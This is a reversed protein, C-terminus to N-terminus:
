LLQEKKGNLLLRTITLTIATKPSVLAALEHKIQQAISQSVAPTTWCSCWCVVKERKSEELDAWNASRDSFTTLNCCLLFHFFLLLLFYCATNDAMHIILWSPVYQERVLNPVLLSSLQWSSQRQHMGFSCCTCLACCLILPLSLFLPGSHHIPGLQSWLSLSLSLSLSLPGEWALNREQTWDSPTSICGM